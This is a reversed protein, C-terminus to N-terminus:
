PANQRSELKAIMFAFDTQVLSPKRFWRFLPAALNVALLLKWRPIKEVSFVHVSGVSLVHYGFQQGIYALTAANYFAVHQGTQLCLYWWNPDLPMKYPLTTAILIKPKRAFIDALIERPNTLHELVEFLTVGTIPEARDDEFGRALLNATFPDNHRFDFGADRMLRTFLGVGGAYDVFPGSRCATLGLFVTVLRSLWLNREMIGTDASIVGLDFNTSLWEPNRVQLFQCANCRDYHAPFRGLILAQHIQSTDSNCLRCKM